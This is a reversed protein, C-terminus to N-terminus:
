KASIRLQEMGYAAAWQSEPFPGPPPCCGKPLFGKMAYGKFLTPNTMTNAVMGQSINTLFLTHDTALSGRVYFVNRYGIVDYGLALFYQSDSPDTWMVTYASKLNLPYLQPKVLLYKRLPTPASPTAPAKPILAQTETALSPDPDSGPPVEAVCGVLCLAAAFIISKM